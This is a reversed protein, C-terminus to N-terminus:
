TRFRYILAFGCFRQRHAMRWTWEHLSISVALVNLNEFLRANPALGLRITVYHVLSSRAVWIQSKPDQKLDRIRKDGKLVGRWSGCLSREYM